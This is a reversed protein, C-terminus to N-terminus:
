RCRVRWHAPRHFRHRCATVEVQSLVVERTSTVRANPLRGLDLIVELLFDSANYEKVALAIAPPLVDMLAHLDDTIKRKEM